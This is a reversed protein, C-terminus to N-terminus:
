KKGQAEAAALKERLYSMLAAEGPQDLL